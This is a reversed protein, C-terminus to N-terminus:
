KGFLAEFMKLKAESSVEGNDNFGTLEYNPKNSQCYNYYDMFTNYEVEIGKFKRMGALPDIVVRQYFVNKKTLKLMNHLLNMQVSTDQFQVATEGVINLTYYLQLPIGNDIIYKVCKYFADNTFLKGNMRRLEENGSIPSIVLVTRRKDFTNMIDDIFAKTPLQFCELYLGPKINRKRIEAFVASYYEKGFMQFDHTPSVRLTGMKELRLFDDAVKEPSATLVNCRKFLAEMNDNAGCCYACNFTCGRAICLWRESDKRSAGKTSLFPVRESHEFFDVSVFDIDDLSTQVWTKSYTKVAGNERYLINPIESFETEIKGLLKDVLLEIPLDSDGTVLFDVNSFNQMIEDAYITSTYGGLITHANPRVKKSQEVVWLAGFSHEYWHLDTMLVKYDTEALFSNLDFNPNLDKEIAYNVGIVNVGKKRLANLIGIIGVPMYAYSLQGSLPNKVSHIYLVDCKKM